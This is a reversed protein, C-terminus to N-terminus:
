KNILNKERIEDLKKLIWSKKTQPIKLIENQLNEFDFQDFKNRLYFLKKVNQYFSSNLEKRLDQIKKNKKTFHKYSDLALVFSEYDNLEYFNMLQLNRVYFKMQLFEFGIKLSYELSKKYEGKIFCLSAMAFNYANIKKDESLKDKFRLIFNEVEKIRNLNSNIVIYNIFKFDMLVGNQETFVDNEIMLDFIKSFEEDKNEFVSNNHVLSNSLIVFLNRLDKKNLLDKIEHISKKLKEFDEKSESDALQYLTYYCKLIKYDEDSNRKAINFITNMNKDDIMKMFIYLIGDDDGKNENFKLVKNNYYAKFLYILFSYIMKESAADRERKIGSDWEGANVIIFWYVESLLLYYDQVSIDLSKLININFDNDFSLFKTSVHKFLNRKNLEQILDSYARLRNRDYAEHLIFKECIKLLDYIMNKMTGYNFNKDPYLKKWVVERKINEKSFDPYNNKLELFLNILNEKKNFYPSKIFDELKSLEEESFTRILDLLTSKIM